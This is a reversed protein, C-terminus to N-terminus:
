GADRADTVAAPDLLSPPARTITPVGPLWADVYRSLKGYSNDVYHAERGLLCALLIAHLRDTHIVAYPSFLAVARDILLDGGLRVFLMPSPIPLVPLRKRWREARWEQERLFDRRRRDRADLFTMWDIGTALGRSSEHDRRVLLLPEASTPPTTEKLVGWLAHAMDPVLIVRDSFHTRAVEESPRDRVCITVDAHARFVAASAALSAEDDFQISQPFVVIRREPFARLINERFRQHAPWVTGFNGGGHLVIVTEPRLAARLEAESYTELTCRYRVTVRHRKLFREAGIHILRDGVNEHDPIDLYVIDRAPGLPPLAADLATSLEEMRRALVAKAGKMTSGEERM